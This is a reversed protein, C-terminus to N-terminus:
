FAARLMEEVTRVFRYTLSHRLEAPVDKRNREPLIVMAVGGNARARFFEVDSSTPAGDTSFKLEMPLMAVRNKLHLSGIQLPSLLMELGSQETVAESSRRDTSM